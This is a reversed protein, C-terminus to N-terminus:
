TAPTTPNPNVKNEYARGAFFGGILGAIAFLGRHKKGLAYGLGAGGIMAIGTTSTINQGAILVGTDSPNVQITSM